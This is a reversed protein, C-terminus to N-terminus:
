SDARAAPHDGLARLTSEIQFANSYMKGSKSLARIDKRDRDRAVIPVAGHTEMSSSQSSCSLSIWPGARDSVSRSRSFLRPLRRLGGGRRDVMGIALM